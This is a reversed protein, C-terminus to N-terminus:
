LIAMRFYEMQFLHFDEIRWITFILIEEVILQYMKMCKQLISFLFFSLYILNLRLNRM